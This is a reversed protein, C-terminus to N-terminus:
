HMSFGLKFKLPCILPARFGKRTAKRARGCEGGGKTEESAKSISEGRQGLVRRM